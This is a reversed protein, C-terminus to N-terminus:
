DPAQNAPGRAAGFAQLAAWVAPSRLAPDRDHILRVQLQRLAVAPGVSRQLEEHLRPFVHLALADDITWSAAVVSSAGAALLQASLTDLGENPAPDVAATACAALVVLRVGDLPLRRLQHAYLVSPADPGSDAAFLLRSFAPAALNPLAHGSYHVLEHRGVEDVFRGVTARDGALLMPQAYLASVRRAEEAAAPLPPVDLASDPTSSAV